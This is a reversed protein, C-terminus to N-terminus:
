ARLFARMKEVFVRKDFHTKAYSYAAYSLQQRLAADNILQTIHAIGQTVIGAEDEPTHMLLATAGDTLHSKNGELATVVPICGHAMGEKILMPFGEYASTMLIAHCKRYLAQMQSVEKIEGHMVSQQKVTDSLEDNLHGAFHFEVHLDQELCERAIRDLLYLRKQPGGRGAYLVRLPLSLDKKCTDPVSVGPEILQVRQMYTEPIHRERYHKRINEQTAADIVMRHTLLRYNALGFFEMGNNGYTFNHLLETKTHRRSIFPLMDYFFTSNSSFLHSAPHRNIYFAWYHVAFLRLLLNDCWFHIDRNETHPQKWFEQKLTDNTSVRTFYVQKEADQVSELIDLHVRQAGGLVYRDFFFFLRGKNRPRLLALPYLLLLSVPYTIYLLIRFLQIKKLNHMKSPSPLFLMSHWVALLKNAAAKANTIYLMNRRAIEM